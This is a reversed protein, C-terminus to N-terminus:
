AEHVTISDHKNAERRMRNFEVLTLNAKAARLEKQLRELEKYLRDNKDLLSNISKSQSVIVEDKAKIIAVLERKNM